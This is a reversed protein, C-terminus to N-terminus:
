SKKKLDNLVIRVVESPKTEATNIITASPFRVREQRKLNRLIQAKAVRKASERRAIRELLVPRPAQLHYFRVTCGHKKALRLFRNAMARSAVTQQLLVSVHNKFYEDCMRYIVDWALQNDERLVLRRVDEIAIIATRKLKKELLRALTSKGSGMPGNFLIFNLRDQM